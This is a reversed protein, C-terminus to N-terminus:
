FQRVWMQSIHFFIKLQSYLRRSVLCAAAPLLNRGDIVHGLLYKRDEEDLSIVASREGSKQKEQVFCFIVCLKFMLFHLVHLTMQCILYIELNRNM